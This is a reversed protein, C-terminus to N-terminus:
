GIQDRVVGAWIGSERAKGLGDFGACPPLSAANRLRWPAALLGEPAPLAREEVEPLLEDGRGAAELRSNVAAVSAEARALDDVLTAIVRAAKVYQSRVKEATAEALKEAEAREADLAAKAEDVEASSLRRAIEERAARLRDVARRADAEAREIKEIERDDASLLLGARDAALRAAEAEATPIAAEVESLKARLAEAGSAPRRLFELINPILSM